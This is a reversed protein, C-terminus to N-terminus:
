SEKGPILADSTFAREGRKFSSSYRVLERQFSELGAKSVKHIVSAVPKGTKSNVIGTSASAPKSAASKAKPAAGSKSFQGANKPAGRPHDSENFAAADIAADLARHLRARRSVVGVVGTM